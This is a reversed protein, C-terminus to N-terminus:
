SLYVRKFENLALKEWRVEEGSAVWYFLLINWLLSKKDEGSFKPHYERECNNATAYRLHLLENKTLSMLEMLTRGDYRRQTMFEALTISSVLHNDYYIPINSTSM